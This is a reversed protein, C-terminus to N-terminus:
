SGNSKAGKPLLDKLFKIEDDCLKKWIKADFDQKNCTFSEWYETVAEYPTARCGAHGTKAYVPCNICEKRHYLQNLVLRLGSNLFLDCLACDDSNPTETHDIDKYKSMREWHEISEKLAKITRVEVIEKLDELTISEM